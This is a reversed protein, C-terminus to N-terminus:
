SAAEERALKLLRRLRGAYADKSIGARAGLATLSDHPNDIRLKAAELYVAPARDGLATLAAEVRRIMAPVAAQTRQANYGALHGASAATRGGARGAEPNASVGRRPIGNEDMVRRLVGVSVDMIQATERLSKREDEYLRRVLAIHRDTFMLAATM